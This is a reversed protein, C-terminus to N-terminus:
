EESGNEFEFLDEITCNFARSLKFALTLSPNFKGNEIAVITQRSVDMKQALDKQTWKEKRRRERVYNKM